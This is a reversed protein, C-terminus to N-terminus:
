LARSSLALSAADRLVSDAESTYDGCATHLVLGPLLELAERSGKRVQVIIRNAPAGSRPWLPFLRCGRHPLVNLAHAVRDARLIVSLTGGSRVRRMGASLWEELRGDDSVAAARGPHPSKAGGPDHFPPNTFVHDFDRRLEAPLEFVDGIAFTVRSDFANAQANAAALDVLEDITEVGVIKADRSRQALCLSAVGAGSGLELCEEGAAAPVAAALM